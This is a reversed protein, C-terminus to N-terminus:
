EYWNEVRLGQVRSFERVNRTVLTGNQALATAAVLTDIPGIGEGADELKKRLEAAARAAEADLPLVAVAALFQEFESQRRRANQLGPVGVWVEYAVVAPIAVEIPPVGLFREAVKGRGRFYDLVTNTDLVFV